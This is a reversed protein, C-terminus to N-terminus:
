RDHHEQAAIAAASYLSNPLWGGQTNPRQTGALVSITTWMVDGIWAGLGSGKEEPIAGFGHVDDM